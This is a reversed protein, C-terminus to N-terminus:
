DMFFTHHGLMAVRKDDRAWAPRVQVAALNCYLVAGGAYNTEASARWAAICEQVVPDSDDIKLSKIRNPDGSEWGSFQWPKLVTGAVTGDSSYFRRMRNRIVEGVAIKGAYPEGRAEQYLTIVALADESILKM